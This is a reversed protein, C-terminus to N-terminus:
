DLRVWPPVPLSQNCLWRYTEAMKAGIGQWSFDRGMWERGRRGMVALQTPSLSMAETLCGILPETGSDIWWGSQQAALGSWPAGKTVIAPTGHALAEAVAMGFNESFTPLVFLDADLYADYKDMSYLAGSFEVDRLGLRRAMEALKDSYGTSGHYGDDSGVIRLQWDPFIVQIRQWANLLLEIGKIPHVRSLFLLTRKAGTRASKDRVLVPLDIGNPLVAVPQRFGLRRVDEYESEATAHFCTARALAPKQLFPWFLRKVSSGHQMAWSSFAGRPSFVVKVNTGRSAWTPYVANMQWMGHNHIVAVHGSSCQDRLWRYMAPSRGLRRPGLGIPFAKLFPPPDTLPAWDLAVLKVDYDLDILNKCLRTVSYSPGSGEESIAPVVEIIRM